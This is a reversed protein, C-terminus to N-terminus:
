QILLSNKQSPMISFLAPSLICGQRIGKEITFWDTTGCELRVASQQDQYLKRILKVYAPFGMKMMISWLQNYRANDFAKSYDVFCIFLDANESMQSDADSPQLHSACETDEDNPWSNLCSRAQM